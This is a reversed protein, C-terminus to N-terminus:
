AACRLYAEEQTGDTPDPEDWLMRPPRTQRGAVLRSRPPANEARQALVRARGGPRLEPGGRAVMGGHGVQEDFQAGAMPVEGPALRPVHARGHAEEAEGAHATRRALYLSTRDGAARQM